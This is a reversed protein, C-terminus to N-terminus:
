YYKNMMGPGMVRLVLGNLADLGGLLTWGLLIAAGLALELLGLRTKAVTYDAAKQHAVLTVTAAFKDPVAGRHQAVHRIQRSALWFKLLMGVVLALAFLATMAFSPSFSEHM